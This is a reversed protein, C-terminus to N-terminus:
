PLEYIMFSYFISFSLSLIRMIGLYFFDLLPPEILFFLESNLSLLADRDDLALFITLNSM